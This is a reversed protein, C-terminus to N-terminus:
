HYYACTSSGAREQAGAAWIQSNFVIRKSWFRARLPFVPTCPAIEPM